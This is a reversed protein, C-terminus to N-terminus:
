GGRLVTVTEKMGDLDDLDLWQVYVRQVGAEELAAITEAAQQTTGVPIGSDRYRSELDEPSIGRAKATGELRARYAADDRGVLATGM